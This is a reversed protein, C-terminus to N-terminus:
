DQNEGMSYFRAYQNNVWSLISIVKWKLMQEAKKRKEFWVKPLLRFWKLKRPLLIL